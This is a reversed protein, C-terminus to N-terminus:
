MWWFRRQQRYHSTRWNGDPYLRYELMGSEATSHMVAGSAQVRERVAPHPHGFANAYGHSMVVLQPSVTRLWARCSSTNSGHHAALLWDSALSDQWYTILERESEAGIDGPLLFRRGALEVQLVCSSNNGSGTGGGLFQFATGDPWRWARGPRCRQSQEGYGIPEGVVMQSVDLSSRLIAAGASHDIDGHSIVLQDLRKIDAIRTYPLVVTEALTIGGPRGGGTDYLLTGAGSQILVSTGQGVDFVVVRARWPPPRAEAQWGALVTIFLALQCQRHLPLPLAMLAVLVVVLSPTSLTYRRYLYQEGQELISQAAPLLWVLPEAAVLWLVGALGPALLQALSALLCAPVVWFGIVPVMIVNALAAVLSGGEFLWGTIPLMAVCLWGHMQLGARLASKTARWQVWWVILAVAGVSLWLGPSLAALPDILLILACAIILSRWANGTRGILSAVVFTALMILARQTSLSFGALATYLSAFALGLLAGTHAWAASSPLFALRQVASGIAIGVGAVLGVHLGSIVLLHNIGLARFLSWLQHDIAGRDAVSIAALVAKVEDSLRLQHIAAGIRRRLVQHTQSWAADGPALREAIRATGVAHNGKQRYWAQRNFTGPNAQGWPQRLKATFAYREGPEIVQDGYYSLQLRQPGQCNDASLEELDFEFQQREVGERFPMKTPLSVVRGVIQLNQRVCAQPLALALVREGRAVVYGYTLLFAAALRAPGAVPLLSAGAVLAAVQVSTPPLQPQVMALFLGM